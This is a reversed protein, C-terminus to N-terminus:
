TNLFLLWSTIKKVIKKLTIKKSTILNQIMASNKKARAIFEACKARDILLQDSAIYLQTRLEGCSGKAVYLFQIFEKDTQREFGEAINSPVSTSSKQIQDRLSYNRCNKLESHIDCSLRLGEQWIILDEFTQYKNEM